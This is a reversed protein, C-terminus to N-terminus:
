FDLEASHLTLRYGIESPGRAFQKCRPMQPICQKAGRVWVILQLILLFCNCFNTRVWTCIIHPQKDGLLVNFFHSIAGSTALYKRDCLGGGIKALEEWIAVSRTKQWIKRVICEERAGTVAYGSETYGPVLWSKMGRVDIKVTKWIRNLEM